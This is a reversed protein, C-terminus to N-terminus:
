KWPAPEQNRVFISLQNLFRHRTTQCWFTCQIVRRPNLGSMDTPVPPVTTIHPSGVDIKDSPTILFCVLVVKVKGRPEAYFVDDHVLIPCAIRAIREHSIGVNVKRGEDAISGLTAHSDYQPKRPQGNLVVHLQKSCVLLPTDLAHLHVKHVTVVPPHSVEVLPSRCLSRPMVQEDVEVARELRRSQFVFIRVQYGVLSHATHLPTLVAMGVIADPQGEDTIGYPCHVERGSGHHAALRIVEDRAVRVVESM